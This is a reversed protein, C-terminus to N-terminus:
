KSQGNRKGEINEERCVQVRFLHSYSRRSIFGLMNPIFNLGDFKWKFRSVLLNALIGGGIMVNSVSEIAMVSQKQRRLGGCQEEEERGM